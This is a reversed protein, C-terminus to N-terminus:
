QKPSDISRREGIKSSCCYFRPFSRARTALASGLRALGDGSHRVCSASLPTEFPRAANGSRSDIRRVLVVALRDCVHQRRFFGMHSSQPVAALHGDHQPLPGDLLFVTAPGHAAVSVIGCLCRCVVDDGRRISQDVNALGAQAVAFDGLDVHGRPRHRGVVRLQRDCLGLRGPCQRGM